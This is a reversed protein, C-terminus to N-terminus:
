LHDTHRLLDMATLLLVTSWLWLQWMWTSNSASKGRRLRAIILPSLYIGAAVLAAPPIQWGSVPFLLLVPTLLARLLTVRVHHPMASRLFAVGFDDTAFLARQRWMFPGWLLVFAAGASLFAMTISRRRNPIKIWGYVFLGALMGASFYHTLATALLYLVLLVWRRRSIGLLQIRLLVDAALLAMASLLTYNRALRAYEIQPCSVAMLLAAWAAPAFGAQLRVLDFLVGIALLAAVASFARAGQDSDGWLEEWMRLLLPYLPPHTTEMHTWVDAM